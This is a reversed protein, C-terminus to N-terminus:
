HYKSVCGFSLISRSAKPDPQENTLTTRATRSAPLGSLIVRTGAADLLSLWPGAEPINPGTVETAGLAASLATYSICWPVPQRPANIIVTIPQFRELLALLALLIASVGPITNKNPFHRRSQM